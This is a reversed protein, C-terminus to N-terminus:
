NKVYWDDVASFLEFCRRYGRSIMLAEIEQRQPTHNHEVTIVSVNYKEHDFAQLIRLESGETDVSMYDIQAPAKHFLLLDNLSITEVSYVVGQGRLPGHGDHRTYSDVTSLGALGPHTVENFDLHQESADWVCRLDINCRRNKQLAEHWCRGPEAVIGQWDYHQELMLSNSGSKGDCAGFEVFYGNRKEGLTHLVFLDQFFQASSLHLQRRCYDLFKTNIDQEPHELNRRFRLFGNFLDQMTDM